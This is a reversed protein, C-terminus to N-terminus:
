GESTFLEVVAFPLAPISSSQQDAELAWVFRTTFLALVILTCTFRQKIM